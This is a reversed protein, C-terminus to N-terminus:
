RFDKQSQCVGEIQFEGGRGHITNKSFLAQEPKVMQVPESLNPGAYRNLKAGLTVWPQYCKSKMAQLSWQPM